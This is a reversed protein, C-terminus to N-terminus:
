EYGEIRHTVSYRYVKGQIGREVILMFMLMYLGFSLPDLIKRKSMCIFSFLQDQKVQTTGERWEYVTFQMLALNM